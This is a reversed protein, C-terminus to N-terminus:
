GSSPDASQKRRIAPGGRSSGWIGGSGGRLHLGGGIPIVIRVFLCVSWVGLKRLWNLRATRLENNQDLGPLRRASSSETKCNPLLSHLRNREWGSSDRDTLISLLLM